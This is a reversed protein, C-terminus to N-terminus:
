SLRNAITKFGAIPYQGWGAESRKALTGAKWLADLRLGFAESQASDPLAEAVGHSILLERNRPAFTGISPDVVFMPLGLGVAWNTREHAPSVFYDLATFHRYTSRNLDARDGYTQLLAGSDPMRDTDISLTLGQMAFTQLLRRAFRGGRKAVVFASGGRRVASIAAAVLLTVHRRPEAWSSFFGGCLSSAEAYRRQREAQMSAGRSALPPEVCLGTVCINRSDLGAKRFVTAVQETPVLTLHNGQILCEPPVVLEGHQYILQPHERLLAVLIPHAVILPGTRNSFRRALPQGACRLLPGPTNYSGRKRLRSYASNEGGASSGFRYAAKGGHWIARPIGNTAAFVNTIDGRTSAPLSEVIGDLYFPHGRGIDTYLVDIIDPGDPTTPPNEIPDYM